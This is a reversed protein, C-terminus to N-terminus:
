AHKGTMSPRYFSYDLGRQKAHYMATDAHRLLCARADGDDPYLAIGVSLRITMSNNDIQVPQQASDVLKRAIEEVQATDEVETLVVAFEDGGLRVLLDHSAINALSIGTSDSLPPTRLVSNMREALECLLIDGAQHGYEDNVRKFEDFDILFLAIRRSSGQYQELLYEIYDNFLGRNPLRTMPDTYAMRELRSYLQHLEAAMQNFDDVLQSVEIISSQATIPEGLPKNNSHLKQLQKNLIDLPRVLTRRLLFLAVLIVLAIIIASSILLTNRTRGLDAYMERTDDYVEIRLATEGGRTTQLLYDAILGNNGSEPWHQSRHLLPGGPLRIRVPMGLDKEIPSLSPTPATVIELYARPVLGGLPLLIAYYPRGHNNCLTALIQLRAAGQRAAAQEVLEPCVSGPQELTTNEASSQARPKFDPSFVVLRELRLINATVFYQHFQQELEQELVRRDDNALAQQFDPSRKLSNGLDRSYEELQLLRDHTKLAVLEALSQRKYDLIVDRYVSTSILALGLGLLGVVLITLVLNTKISLRIPKM